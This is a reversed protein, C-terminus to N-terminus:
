QGSKCAKWEPHREVYDNPQNETADKRRWLVINETISLTVPGPGDEIKKVYPKFEQKVFCWGEPTKGPAGWEWYSIIDPFTPHKIGKNWDEYDYREGTTLNEYYNGVMHKGKGSFPDIGKGTREDIYRTRGYHQKWRSSGIPQVKVKTVKPDDEDDWSNAKAQYIEVVEALVMTVSRGSMAAYIVQDGVDYEQNLWDKM